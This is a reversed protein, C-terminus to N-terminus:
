RRQSESSSFQLNNVTCRHWLAPISGTGFSALLDKHAHEIRFSVKDKKPEGSASVGLAAACKTFEEKEYGDTSDAIHATLLAVVHQCLLFRI